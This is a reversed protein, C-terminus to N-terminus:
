AVPPIAALGIPMALVAPGFFQRFLTPTSINERYMIVHPEEPRQSGDLCVVRASNHFGELAGGNGGEDGNSALLARRGGSTDAGTSHYSESRFSENSLLSLGTTTSSGSHNSPTATSQKGGISKPRPAVTLDAYPYNYAAALVPGDGLGAILQPPAPSGLMGGAGFTRGNGRGCNYRTLPPGGYHTEVGKAPGSRLAAHNGPAFRPFERSPPPPPADYFPTIQPSSNGGVNIMRNQQGISFAGISPANLSMPIAGAVTAVNVIGSGGSNSNIGVQKSFGKSEMTDGHNVRFSPNAPSAADDCGQDGRPGVNTRMGDLFQHKRYEASLTGTLKKADGGTLDKAMDYNPIPARQTWDLDSAIFQSGTGLFSNSSPSNDNTFQTREGGHVSGNSIVPRSFQMGSPAEQSRWDEFIPLFQRQGDYTGQNGQYDEMVSFHSAFEQRGQRPISADATVGDAAM